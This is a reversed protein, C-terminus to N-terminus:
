QALDQIALDRIETIELGSQRNSYVVQQLATSGEPLPDRLPEIARIFITKNFPIAVGQPRDAKFVILNAVMNLQWTGDEKLPIPYSLNKIDLITQAGGSFVERPTLQALAEVFAPRMDESLALSAEWTATTIRGKGTEIGPDTAVPQNSEESDTAQILPQNNWSLLMQMTEKTFRHVVMPTRFNQDVAEVAVSEGNVLQVLSPVPKGAVTAVYATEILNLVLILAQLALTGLVFIPMINSSSFRSKGMLQM